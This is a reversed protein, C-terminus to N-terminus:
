KLKNHFDQFRSCISPWVRFVSINIARNRSSKEQPKLKLVNIGTVIKEAATLKVKHRYKNLNIM